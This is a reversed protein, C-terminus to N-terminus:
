RELLNPQYYIDVNKIEADGRLEIKLRLWESILPSNPFSFKQYDKSADTIEGLKRWPEVFFRIEGSAGTISDEITIKKPTGTDLATIKSFLGAGDGNVIVVEDGVQWGYLSDTTFRNATEWTGALFGRPYNTGDPDKTQYKIIIKSGSTLRYKILVNQWINDVEPSFIKPLIIHGRRGYQRGFFNIFSYIGIQSVLNTRQLIAGALGLTSRDYSLAGVYDIRLNGYSLLSAYNPVITNHHYIKGTEPEYLYIGAWVNFYQFPLLFTPRKDIITIGNRHPLKLVRGPITPFEAYKRFGAGAWELLNGAETIVNLNNNWIFGVMEGEDSFWEKAGEQLPDYEVIMFRDDDWKIGLFVREPTTKIWKITTQAPLILRNRYVVEGEDVSHLKNKDGIFLHKGLIALPHVGSTLAPQGLEETWWNVHWGAWPAKRRALNTPRSVILNDGFVIIDPDDLDTPTYTYTDAAFMTGGGPTRFVRNAVAWRKGEFEAFGTVLLTLASVDQNTTHPVYPYYIPIIRGQLRFFNLSLCNNFDGWFEGLYNPEWIQNKIPFSAKV